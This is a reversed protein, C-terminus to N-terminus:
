KFPETSSNGADQKMDGLDALGSTDLAAFDFNQEGTTTPPPSPSNEVESGSGSSSSGSSGTYDQSCEQDTNM